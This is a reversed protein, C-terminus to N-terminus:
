DGIWDVLPHSDLGRAVFGFWGEPIQALAANAQGFGAFSCFVSSGSGSMSATGFQGLWDLASRVEPYSRCVAEQLDNQGEYLCFDAIKIPKSNRTLEPDGFVTPTTVLCNPHVVLYWAEALELPTLQEGIGEAFASRGFVFFPVDAGLSVALTLLESRTLNLGWLKNMVLLVTAADSSGGGLGGGFPIRKVIDLEVGQEISGHEALLRAARVALDETDPWQHQSIRRIIKQPTLRFGVSDAFDLLRFVTQLFHYGDDRRGTIRLFLNIKSPAPFYNFDERTTM